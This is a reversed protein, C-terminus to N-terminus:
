RIEFVKLRIKLTMEITMKLKLIDNEVHNSTAIVVKIDESHRVIDCVKKLKYLKGIMQHM